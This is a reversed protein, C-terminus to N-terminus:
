SKDQETKQPKRNKGDFLSKVAIRVDDIAGLAMINAFALIAADLLSDAIRSYAWIATAASAVGQFLLWAPSQRARKVAFRTFFVASIFFVATFIYGILNSVLHDPMAM